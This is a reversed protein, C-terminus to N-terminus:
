IKFVGDMIQLSGDLDLRGSYYRSIIGGFWGGTKDRVLIDVDYDEIMIAVFYDTDESYLQPSEEVVLKHAEKLFLPAVSHHFIEMVTAKMEHSASIVGNDYYEYIKGVEPIGARKKAKKIWTTDPKSIRKLQERISEKDLDM